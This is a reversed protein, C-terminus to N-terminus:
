NQGEITLLPTLTRNRPKGTRTRNQRFQTTKKEKGKENQKRYILEVNIYHLCENQFTSVDNSSAIIQKKILKLYMYVVIQRM